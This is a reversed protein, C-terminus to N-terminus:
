TDDKATIVFSLFVKVVTAFRKDSAITYCAHVVDRIIEDAVVSVIFYKAVTSL